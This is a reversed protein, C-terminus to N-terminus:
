KKEGAKDSLLSEIKPIDAGSVVKGDIIFYPTSLIGMEQSMSEHIKILDDVEANKCTEYKQGDIKGQMVEVLAKAREKQCLIYRVKNPSDPHMPLPTFFTYKTIDTRSEFFKAAQRCYPCDPDTFEIVVHKGQGIKIAKDLPLSEAKKAIGENFKDMIVQQRDATLNHMTKDIMQGDIIIGEEPAFYLVRNVLVVEYIGKIPSPAISEYHLNPFASKWKQEVNKGVVATGASASACVIIMACMMVSLLIKKM